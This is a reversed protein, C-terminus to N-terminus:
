VKDHKKRDHKGKKRRIRNEQPELIINVYYSKFFDNFKTSIPKNPFCLGDFTQNQSDEYNHEMYYIKDIKIIRKTKLIKDIQKEITLNDTDYTYYENRAILPKRGVYNLEKKFYDLIEFKTGTLIKQVKM